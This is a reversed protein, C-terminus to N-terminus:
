HARAQLNQWPCEPKVHNLYVWITVSKPNLHLFFTLFTDLERWHEGLSEILSTWISVITQGQGEGDLSFDSEDFVCSLKPM